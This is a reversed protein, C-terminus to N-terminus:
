RYRNQIVPVGAKYVAEETSIHAWHDSSAVKKATTNYGSGADNAQPRAGGKDIGFGSVGVACECVGIWRWGM